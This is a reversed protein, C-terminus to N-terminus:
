CKPVYCTGVLFANGVCTGVASSGTGICTGGLRQGCTQDIDNYQCNKNYSRVCLDTVQTGNCRLCYEQGWPHIGPVWCSSSATGCSIQLVCEYHDLGPDGAWAVGIAIIVIAAAIPARTRM